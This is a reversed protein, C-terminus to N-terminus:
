KGGLLAWSALDPCVSLSSWRVFHKGNYLDSKNGSIWSGWRTELIVPVRGLKAIGAM